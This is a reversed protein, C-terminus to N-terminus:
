VVYLEGGASRVMYDINTTEDLPIRIKAEVVTGTEENYKIGVPRGRQIIDWMSFRIQTNEHYHIKSSKLSKFMSLFADFPKENYCIAGTYNKM